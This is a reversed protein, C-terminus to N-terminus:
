VETPNLSQLLSYSNTMYVCWPFLCGKYRLFFTCLVRLSNFFLINIVIYDNTCNCHMSFYIPNDANLQTRNIHSSQFGWYVFFNCLFYYVAIVKFKARVDVLLSHLIYVVTRGFHFRDRYLPSFVNLRPTLITYAM